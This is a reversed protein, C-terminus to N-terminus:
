PTRGRRTLRRLVPQLVDDVEPARQLKAVGLYALGGLGVVVVLRIVSPVDATLAMLVAMLVAAVVGALLFRSQQHAVHVPRGLHQRAKRQLLAVEVWAGISAAVALGAAGLRLTGSDRAAQSLPELPAPLNDFGTVSGDTVVLREFQFMLVFGLVSSILVRIVAIWATAKVDNVAYLVNQMLRSSGVSLLATAYAALILWVLMTDDAEFRGREYIAAIIAQGAVLYAAMTFTMFFTIRGLGRDLRQLLAEPDTSSRSLEPLEAAAVSMAFLSVPLIYLVQSYGLAAVAGTALLSALVLDIYAVLQIAGRGLVAPGFRRISERVGDVDRRLSLRIGPDVRRVTPLQILFQLLGGVFVGWALAEAVDVAAWGRLGVFVLVAIQAVNWVVPAVYSLFFKRHSNLVGLCWASLVLFGIGATMIRVLQVTLDFKEGEFGFALVRTVPEAFVVGVVVLVGTLLSLLGAIAGALRGADEERDESLLRSYVPIFSASLVGEGLLNQLLNPIRLAARFADGAVGAGLYAATASERILGAIRSLLIGAGVLVSSRGTDVADLPEGADFAAATTPADGPLDTM